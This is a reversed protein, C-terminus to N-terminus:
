CWRSAADYVGAYLVNNYDDNGPFLQDAGTAYDWFYVYDGTRNYVSKIRNQWNWQALAQTGCSSLKGRNGTFNLGDWFCYWGAPCSLAAQQGPRAVTIVFRGGDYSIEDPATQVGGPHAGMERDVSVQLEKGAKAQGSEAAQAPSGSVLLGMLLAGM